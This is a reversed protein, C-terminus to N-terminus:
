PTEEPPPESEPAPPEDVPRVLVTLGEVREVRVRRGPELPMGDGNARARWLAGDVHVRGQPAVASRVTGVRGVLDDAGGRAPAARASVVKTAAFVTFAAVGAGTAVAVPVSVRLAEADGDFLLVGGGVLACAGALGLIGGAVQTEAALFGLGLLLLVVGGTNVPLQATGYLGLVLAVAGFLGPGLLGPSLLELALGAVGAVLLLFAVTPNLLVRQVQVTVPVDLREVRAGGVDLTPVPTPDRLRMGDAAALVGRTDPAVIEILGRARAEGAPVNVADAVMRRALAADRGRGEALATAYAQADNRVKRGLVEDQPGPGLSVPTASGINTQPAMAAVHAALAIFLGASAARAGNPAVHVIVPVPAGLIDQVIDRMSSDLGGPTDLRLVLAAADRAAAQEIADGVAARMAPDVTGVAEAELVLPASPQGGATAALAGGGALLLALLLVGRRLLPLSPEM